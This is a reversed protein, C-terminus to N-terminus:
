RIAPRLHGCASHGGPVLHVSWLVFSCALYGPTVRSSGGPSWGPVPADFPVARM